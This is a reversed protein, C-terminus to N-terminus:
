PKLGSYNVTEFWREIYNRIGGSVVQRRIGLRNLADRYWPGGDVIAEEPKRGYLRTIQRFFTFFRYKKRRIPKFDWEPQTDIKGRL